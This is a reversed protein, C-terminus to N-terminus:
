VNLRELEKAKLDAAETKLEAAMDYDEDEKAKAKKQELDKLKADFADAEADSPEPEDLPAAEVEGSDADEEDSKPPPKWKPKEKMTVAKEKYKTALAMFMAPEKGKWKKWVEDVDKIDGMDDLKEPNHKAYFAKLKAENTDKVEAKPVCQCSSQQANKYGRCNSEEPDYKKDKGGGVGGVGEEDFPDGSVDSIMAQLQCNQDGKCIKTSCKQFVDHCEKSTMGCTQKCIDREVCCKNLNKGGKNNMLGGMPDNPDFSGASFVNMGSDKCGYSIIQLDPKPAPKEGASCTFSPCIPAPPSYGLFGGAPGGGYQGHAVPLIAAAAFAVRAM